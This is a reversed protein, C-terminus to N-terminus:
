ATMGFKMSLIIKAFNLDTFTKKDHKQFLKILRAKEQFDIKV